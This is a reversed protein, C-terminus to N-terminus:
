FLVGERALIFVMYAAYGAICTVGMKRGFKEKAAPILLLVTVVVLVAVDTVATSAVAIPSISSSVGLILLLNFLNSGVVNGIAIDNEGRRTAMISTVLEPLSTGIAVITLGVVTESLGIMYAIETAGNVTLNGGFIICAISLVIQILLWGYKAEAIKKGEEDDEEPVISQAKLKNREKMGASIQMAVIVVFGALLLLGEARSLYGDFAIFVLLAVAAIISAPWDRKLLTKDTVLPAVLASGGAVLLLNFLNSGLVNSIAIENAQNLGATVSVTLEPASTGFAVVTLGVILAPVGLKRALISASAVFHDAGWVLLAFGALLMVVALM